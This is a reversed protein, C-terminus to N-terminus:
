CEERIYIEKEIKKVVEVLIDFTEDNVNHVVVYDVLLRRANMLEQKTTIKM